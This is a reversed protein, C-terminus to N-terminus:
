TLAMYVTVICQMHETEHIVTLHSDTAKDWYQCTASQVAAGTKQQLMCHVVFKFIKPEEPNAAVLDENFQAMIQPHLHPSANLLCLPRTASAALSRQNAPAQCATFGGYPLLFLFLHNAHPLSRHLRLHQCTFVKLVNEIILNTREEHKSLVFPLDGNQDTLFKALDQWCHFPTNNLM